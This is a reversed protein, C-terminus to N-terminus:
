SSHKSVFNVVGSDDCYRKLVHLIQLIVIRIWGRVGFYIRFRHLVSAGAQPLCPDEYLDTMSCDYKPRETVGPPM